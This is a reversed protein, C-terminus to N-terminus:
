SIVRQQVNVLVTNSYKWNLVLISSFITDSYKNFRLRDMWYWPPEWLDLIGFSCPVCFFDWCWWFCELLVLIGFYYPLCFMEWCWWFCVCRSKGVFCPRERLVLIGFSCQVCLLNWCRWFFFVGRNESSFLCWKVTTKKKSWSNAEHGNDFQLPQTISFISLSPCDIENFLIYITFYCAKKKFWNNESQGYLCLAANKVPFFTSIQSLVLYM